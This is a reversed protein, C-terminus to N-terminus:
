LKKLASHLKGQFTSGLLNVHKKNHSKKSLAVESFFTKIIVSKVMLGDGFIIPKPLAIRVYKM